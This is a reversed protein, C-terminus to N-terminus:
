RYREILSNTPAKLLAAWPLCDPPSTDMTGQSSKSIAVTMITSAIPAKAPKPGKALSVAGVGGVATGPLTVWGAAVVVGRAWAASVCAGSGVWSGVTALVDVGTGGVLVLGALFDGVVRGVRLGVAVSAGVELPYPLADLFALL